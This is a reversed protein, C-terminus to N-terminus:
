GKKTKKKTDKVTENVEISIDKNSEETKEINELTVKIGIRSNPEDLHSNVIGM